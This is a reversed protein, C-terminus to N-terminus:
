GLVNLERQRFRVGLQKALAACAPIDVGALGHIATATVEPVYAPAARLFAQV